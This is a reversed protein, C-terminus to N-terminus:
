RLRVCSSPTGGTKCRMEVTGPAGSSVSVEDHHASGVSPLQKVALRMVAPSRQQPSDLRRSSPARGPEQKCSAVDLGCRRAQSQWERCTRTSAPGAAAQPQGSFVCGDSDLQASAHRVAM